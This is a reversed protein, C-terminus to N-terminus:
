LSGAYERGRRPRDDGEGPVALIATRHERVRCEQFDKTSQTSRDKGPPAARAKAQPWLFRLTQLLRERTDETAARAIMEKVPREWFRRKTWRPRDGSFWRIFRMLEVTQLM